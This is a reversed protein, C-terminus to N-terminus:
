FIPPETHNINGFTGTDTKYWLKVQGSSGSGMRQVIKLPVEFGSLGEKNENKEWTILKDLDHQIARSERTKGDENVQSLALVPVKNEKALTKLTRSIMAVEEQRSMIRKKEPPLIIQIYDVAVLGIKNVNIQSQIDARIDLISYMNENIFIPLNKWGEIVEYIKHWEENSLRGNVFSVYDVGSQMVAYRIKIQRISMEQSFLLSPVGDLANRMLIQLLMTTKGSKEPASVVVLEGNEMGGTAADLDRFGFKKFGSYDRKRLKEIHKYLVETNEGIRETNSENIGKRVDLLSGELYDM